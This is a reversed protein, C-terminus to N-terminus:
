KFFNTIKNGEKKVVGKKGSSASRKTPKRQTTKVPTQGSGRGKGTVDEGSKAIKERSEMQHVEDEVMEEVKRKGPAHTESNLDEGVNKNMGKTM